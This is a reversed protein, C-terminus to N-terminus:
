FKYKGIIKKVAVKVFRHKKLQLKGSWVTGFHGLYTVCFLFFSYKRFVCSTCFPKKFLGGISKGRGIMSEVTFLDPDVWCDKIECALNPNVNTLLVELSSVSDEETRTDEQKGKTHWFRQFCESM